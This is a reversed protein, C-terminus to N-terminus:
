LEQFEGIPVGTTGNKWRKLAESDVPGDDGEIIHSEWVVSAFKELYPRGMSTRPFAVLINVYFDRWALEQVWRGIGSTKGGDVINSHQLIM